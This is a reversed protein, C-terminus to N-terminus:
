VVAAYAVGPLAAGPQGEKGFLLLDGAHHALSQRLPEHPPTGITNRACSTERSSGGRPPSPHPGAQMMRQSRQSLLM